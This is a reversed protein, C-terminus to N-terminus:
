TGVKIRNSLRIFVSESQPGNSAKQQQNANNSFDIGTISEAADWNSDKSDEESRASNTTTTSTTTTDISGYNESGSGEISITEITTTESSDLPSEVAPVNFINVESQATPEKVSNEQTEINANLPSETSDEISEELPNNLQNESSILTPETPIPAITTHHEESASPISEVPKESTVLKKSENNKLLNNDVKKDITLNLPQESSNLLKSNNYSSSNLNEALMKCLAGVYDLYLMSLYYSQRLDMTQFSQTPAACDDEMAFNKLDMGYQKSCVQTSLLEKRLRPLEMLTQLNKYDCSWAQNIREVLSRNCNSCQFEGMVPSRCSNTKTKSNNLGKPALVEAAKKMISLVANSASKFLNQESNKNAQELVQDEEMDDLDDNAHIETDFAEFESTGFVRFLSVPCFHEKAYHSHIDVRVFKGFLHPDLDFSQVNRNDEAVFRGVNSWDRTPYRKSVAVTFNKPSSSFMEFNALHVKHAQIAECLEVVFYLRNGCPILMYEDTSDRLVAGINTADSNSAIIKAGCDPSAYNKQRIKLLSPSKSGSNTNNKKQESNKNVVDQKAQQQKEAAEMQKQAWESFIPVEEATLNVTAGVGSSEVNAAQQDNSDATKNSSDTAIPM